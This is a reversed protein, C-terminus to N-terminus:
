GSRSVGKGEVRMLRAAPVNSMYVDQASLFGRLAEPTLQEGEPLTIVMLGEKAKTALSSSAALEVPDFAYSIIHNAFLVGDKCKGPLVGKRGSIVEFLEIVAAQGEEGIAIAFEIPNYAIESKSLTKIKRTQPKMDLAGLVGQLSTSSLYDLVSSSLIAFHLACSKHNNYDNLIGFINEYVEALRVFGKTVWIDSYLYGHKELKHRGRVGPMVHDLSCMSALTLAAELGERRLVNQILSTTLYLSENEYLFFRKCNVFDTFITGLQRVARLRELIEDASKIPGRKGKVEEYNKEERYSLYKKSLSGKTHTLILQVTEIPLGCKYATVALPKNRLRGVQAGYEILLSLFSRRLEENYDLGQVRVCVEIISIYGYFSNFTSNPNAGRDLLFKAASLNPTTISFALLTMYVYSSVAEEQNAKLAVSRTLIGSAYKYIYTGEYMKPLRGLKLPTNIFEAVSKDSFLYLSDLIFTCIQFDMEQIAKNKKFDYFGTPSLLLAILDWLLLEDWKILGKRCNTIVNQLYQAESNGQHAIKFLADAEQLQKLLKDNFVQRKSQEAKNKKKQSKSKVVKGVSVTKTVVSDPELDFARNEIAKAEIKDGLLKQASELYKNFFPKSQILGQTRILMDNLDEDMQEFMNCEHAKHNRVMTLLFVKQFDYPELALPELLANALMLRTNEGVFQRTLIALAQCPLSQTFGHAPLMAQESIDLIRLCNGFLSVVDVSHNVAEKPLRYNSSILHDDLEHLVIQRRIQTILNKPVKKGSQLYQLVSLFAKEANNIEGLFQKELEITHISCLQEFNRMHACASRVIWSKTSGRQTTGYVLSLESKFIDRFEYPIGEVAAGLNQYALHILCLIDLPKNNEKAYKQLVHKLMQTNALGDAVSKLGALLLQGIELSDFTEQLKGYRELM